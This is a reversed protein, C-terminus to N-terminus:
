IVGRMRKGRILNILFFFCRILHRIICKALPSFRVFDDAQDWNSPIISRASGLRGRSGGRYIKNCPIPDFLGIKKSNKMRTPPPPPLLHAHFNNRNFNTCAHLPNSRHYIRVLGISEVIVEKNWRAVRVRTSRQDIITAEGPLSSAAKRLRFRRDDEGEGSERAGYSCRACSRSKTM